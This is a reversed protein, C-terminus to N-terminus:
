PLLTPGMLLQGIKKIKKAHLILIKCGKITTTKEEKSKNFSQAKDYNEAESQRKPEGLFELTRRRSHRGAMNLFSSLVCKELM